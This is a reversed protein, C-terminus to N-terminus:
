WKPLFLAQIYDGSKEQNNNNVSYYYPSESCKFGPNKVKGYQIAFVSGVVLTMSCLVLVGIILKKNM